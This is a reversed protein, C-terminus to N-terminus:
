SVKLGFARNSLKTQPEISNDKATHSITLGHAKMFIEMQTTDPEKVM